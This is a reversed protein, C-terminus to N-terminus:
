ALPCARREEGICVWLGCAKPVGGNTWCAREEVIAEAFEQQRVVGDPRSAVWIGDDELEQLRGVLRAGVQASRVLGPGQAPRAAGAAGVAATTSNDALSWTPVRGQRSWDVGGVVNAATATTLEDHIAIELKRVGCLRHPADAPQHVRTDGELEHKAM